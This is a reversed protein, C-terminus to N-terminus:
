RGSKRKRQLSPSRETLHFAADQDPSRIAGSEQRERQGYLALLVRGNRNRCQAICQGFGHFCAEGIGSEFHNARSAAIGNHRSAHKGVPTM